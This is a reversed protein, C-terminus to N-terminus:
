ALADLSYRVSVASELLCVFINRSSGEKVACINLLSTYSHGVRALSCFVPGSKIMCWVLRSTHSPRREKLKLRALLIVENTLKRLDTADPAVFCIRELVNALSQLNPNLSLRNNQKRASINYPM